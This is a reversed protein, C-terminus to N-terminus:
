SMLRLHHKKKKKEMKQKLTTKSHKVTPAKLPLTFFAEADCHYMIRNYSEEQIARAIDIAGAYAFVRRTVTDEGHPHYRELTFVLHVLNPLLLLPKADGEQEDSPIASARRVMGVTSCCDSDNRIYTLTSADIRPLRLDVLHVMQSIWSPIRNLPNHTIHLVKLNTMFLVKMPIGRFDNHSLDLWEITESFACDQTISFLRNHSAVLRHLVKRSRVSAPLHKLCRNSIDCVIVLEENESM